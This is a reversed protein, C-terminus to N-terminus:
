EVKEKKAEMKKTERAKQNAETPSKEETTAQEAKMADMKAENQEPAAVAVEAVESNAITEAKKSKVSNTTQATVFTFSAAMLIVAISLKKM